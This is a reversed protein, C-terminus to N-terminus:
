KRKADEWMQEAIPKLVAMLVESVKVCDDVYDGFGKESVVAVRTLPHGAIQQQFFLFGRDIQALATGGNADLSCSFLPSSTVVVPFSMMVPPPTNHEPSATFWYSAAKVVSMTAAFPADTNGDFAQILAYGVSAHDRLWPIEPSRSEADWPFFAANLAVRASKSLFAFASLRDYNATTHESTLLIWPKASAKCEISFHVAAIGYSDQSTAVVDIERSQETDPDIYHWGQRVLFDSKARLLAAVKMELPYGQKQLWAM